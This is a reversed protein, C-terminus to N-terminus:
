VINTPTLNSVFNNNFTKHLFLYIEFNAANLSLYKVRIYCILHHLQQYYIM